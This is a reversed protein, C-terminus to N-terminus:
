RNKELWAQLIVAAAAADSPRRRSKRSGHAALLAKAQFSSLREDHLHVPLATAAALSDAFQRTVRAQEGETGDMNMPLGVVIAEAEHEKALQDIREVPDIPRRRSDIIELPSALSGGADCVAVGTRRLGFDVGLLISM